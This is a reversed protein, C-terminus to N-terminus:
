KPELSSHKSLSQVQTGLYPPHIHALIQKGMYTSNCMAKQKKIFIRPNHQIQPQLLDLWVVTLHFENRQLALFYNSVTTKILSVPM